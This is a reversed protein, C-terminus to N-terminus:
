TSKGSGPPGILIVRPPRRPANNRFRVRLMRALDNGVDNVTKNAGDYQYMFNKFTDMVGSQHMCIDQYIRSATEDSADSTDYKTDPDEVAMQERIRKIVAAKTININMMKDPIVKMKQMSLAQVKTRPFGQVIYSQCKREFHAIEKEILEIV